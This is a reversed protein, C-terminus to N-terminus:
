RYLLVNTASTLYLGFTSAVVSFDSLRSLKTRPVFVVDGSDLELDHEFISQKEVHKLDLVVVQPDSDSFAHFIVVQTEKGTSKIGGALMLARLVSTPERLDYRAPTVVQGAVIFYPKLFDVLVVSIVPDKLREKSKDRILTTAEEVTKGALQVPGGTTLTVFGDPQITITENLEPTYTFVLSLQDGSHLRYSGHPQQPPAPQTQLVPQQPGMQQPLLVPRVPLPSQEQQQQQQPLQVPQVQQPPQQPQVQQATIGPVPLYLVTLLSAFSFLRLKM